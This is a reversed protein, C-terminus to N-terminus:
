AVTKITRFCEFLRKEIRRIARKRSLFLTLLMAALVFFVFVANQIFFGFFITLFLAWGLYLWYRKMIIVVGLRIALQEEKFTLVYEHPIDRYVRGGVRVEAPPSLRYSDGEQTLLLSESKEWFMKVVVVSSDERKPFSNLFAQIQGKETDAIQYVRLEQPKLFALM